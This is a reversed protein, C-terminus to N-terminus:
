RQLATASQASCQTLSHPLPAPPAPHQYDWALLLKWNPPAHSHLTAPTGQCTAPILTLPLSPLLSVACLATAAAMQWRHLAREACASAVQQVFFTTATGESM